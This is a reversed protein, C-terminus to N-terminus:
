TQDNDCGEKRLSRIVQVIVALIKVDEVASGTRVVSPYQPNVPTIYIGPPDGGIRSAYGFVTDADVQAIVIDGDVYSASLETVICDGPQILPAMVDTVVEWCHRESKNNTM